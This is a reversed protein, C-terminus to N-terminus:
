ESNPSTYEMEQKLSPLSFYFPVEQDLVINQKQISYLTHETSKKWSDKHLNCM